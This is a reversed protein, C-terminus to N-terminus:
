VFKACRMGPVLLRCLPVRHGHRIRGARAHPILPLRPRSHRRLRSVRKGPVLVGEVPVRRLPRGRAGVQIPIDFREDHENVLLYLSFLWFLHVALIRHALASSALRFVVFLCQYFAVFAMFQAHSSPMGYPNWHQRASLSPDPRQEGISHKLVLNVAFNAIVGISLFLTYFDRRVFFATAFLVALLIPALSSAAFVLGLLDGEPYEVLTLSFPKWEVNAATNAAADM